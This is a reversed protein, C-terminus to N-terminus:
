RYEAMPLTFVGATTRRKESRRRSFTKLYIKGPRPTYKAYNVPQQQKIAWELELSGGRIELLCKKTYLIASTRRAIRIFGFDIRVAFLIKFM